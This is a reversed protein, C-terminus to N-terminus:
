IYTCVYFLVKELMDILNLGQKPHWANSAYKMTGALEKKGTVWVCSLIQVKIIYVNIM